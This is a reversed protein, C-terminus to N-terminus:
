YAEASCGVTARVRAALAQLWDLPVAVLGKAAPVRDLSYVEVHRPRARRVAVLWAAV